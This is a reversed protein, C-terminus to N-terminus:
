ANAQEAPAQNRPASKKVINILQRFLQPDRMAVRELWNNVIEIAHSISIPDDAQDRLGPYAAEVREVVESFVRPLVAKRQGLAEVLSTYTQAARLIESAELRVVLGFRNGKNVINTFLKLTQGDEIITELDRKGLISDVVGQMIRGVERTLQNNGGGTGPSLSSLKKLANYLDSVFFRMFQEFLGVINQGDQMLRNWEDLVGFFAAKNRPAHAVIGFDIMGVKNEPLLRINGPHPDGQIRPLTFAGM